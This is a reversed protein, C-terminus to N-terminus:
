ESFENPIIKLNNKAFKPQRTKELSVKLIESNLIQNFNLNKIKSKPLFQDTIQSKIQSKAYLNLDKQRFIQSKTGLNLKLNGLM